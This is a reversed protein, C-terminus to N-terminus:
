RIGLISLVSDKNSLDGIIRKSPSPFVKILTPLIFVAENRTRISNDLPNIIEIEYNDKLESTLISKLDAILKENEESNVAYLRFIYDKPM